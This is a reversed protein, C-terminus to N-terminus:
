PASAPPPPSGAARTGSGTPGAQPLPAHSPKAQAPMEPRAVLSPQGDGSRDAPLAGSVAVKGVRALAFGAIVSAGLFLAPQRRALGDLNGVLSQLDNARLTDALAGLEDGGRKVLKAIWDQEGELQEGSRHVADAFSDLQGALNDKQTEAASTATEKADSALAGARDKADRAVDKAHGVADAGAERAQGAAQEAADGATKAGDLAGGVANKNAKDSM